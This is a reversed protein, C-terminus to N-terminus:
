ISKIVEVKVSGFMGTCLSMIAKTALLKAKRKDLHTKIIATRTNIDYSFDEILGKRILENKIMEIYKDKIINIMKVERIDLIELKVV